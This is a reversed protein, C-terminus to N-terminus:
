LDVPSGCSTHQPRCLATQNNLQSSLSYSSDMGLLNHICLLYWNNEEMSYRSQHFFYKFLLMIVSVWFSHAAALFFNFWTKQIFWMMLEIKIEPLIEWHYYSDHAGRAPIGLALFLLKRVIIVRWVLHICFKRGFILIPTRPMIFPLASKNM